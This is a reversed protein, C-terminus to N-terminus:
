TANLADLCDAIERFMAANDCWQMDISACWVGDRRREFQFYPLAPYKDQFIRM